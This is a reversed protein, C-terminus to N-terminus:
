FSLGSPWWWSKWELLSMCLPTLISALWDELRGIMVEENLTLTEERSNILEKGWEANQENWFAELDKGGKNKLCRIAELWM